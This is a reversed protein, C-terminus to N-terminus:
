PLARPVAITDDATGHIQLVGVPESPTCRATDEYMAGALSVIAAVQDAHDCAMRYAM